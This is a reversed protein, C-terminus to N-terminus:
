PPCHAAMVGAGYAWFTEAVYQKFSRVGTGVHTGTRATGMIMEGEGKNKRSGKGKFRVRPARESLLRMFALFLLGLVGTIVGWPEIGPVV